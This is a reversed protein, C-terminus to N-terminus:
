ESNLYNEFIKYCIFSVAIGIMSGTTVDVLFHHNLYIRSIGVLIAALLLIISWEKRGIVLAIFTAMAFATMTHGSPFSGFDQVKVGELLDLVGQGEFYKIPRPTEVFIVQKMSWSILLQILGVLLFIYGFKRRWILLSTAIIFYTFVGGGFTWIRFFGNLLDNHNENLWLVADGHEQRSLYM